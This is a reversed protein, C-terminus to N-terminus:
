TGIVREVVTAFGRWEARQTSLAARGATTITYTRRRRGNHTSWDGRILGTRELRHLAPYITGSPLDVAGDSRNRLEEVVGYGHLAGAELTALLMADLHGKLLASKM